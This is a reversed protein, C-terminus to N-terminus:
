MQVFNFAICTFEDDYYFDNKFAQIIWMDLIESIFMKKIQLCIKSWSFDSESKRQVLNAIVRISASAQHPVTAVSIWNTQFHRM